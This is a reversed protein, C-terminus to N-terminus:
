KADNTRWKIVMGTAIGGFVAVFFGANYPLNHTIIMLIGSVIATTIFPKNKLFPGLLALFTLPIAFELSLGKPLTKGLLVGVICSIQWTTWMTLASGLYYKIKHVPETEDSFKAISVAYAQDTLLYSSIIRLLFHDGRIHQGISAAYMAMRLNILAVTAIAVFMPAQDFLLKALAIQSAGAFVISSMSIAAFESLGANIATVGYILGFPIVGAIIPAVAKVGKFFDYM